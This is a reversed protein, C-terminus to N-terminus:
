GFRQNCCRKEDANKIYAGNILYIPTIELAIYKKPSVM